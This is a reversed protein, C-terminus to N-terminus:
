PSADVVLSIWAVACLWHAHQFRLGGRELMAQVSELHQKRRDGVRV